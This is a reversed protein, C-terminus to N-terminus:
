LVENTQTFDDLETLDVAQMLQGTSSKLGVDKADRPKSDVLILETFPTTRPYRKDQKVTSTQDM